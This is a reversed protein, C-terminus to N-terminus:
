FINGLNSRPKGVRIMASSAGLQDGCNLIYRYLITETVDQKLLDQERKSLHQRLLRKTKKLGIASKAKETFGSAGLLIEMIEQDQEAANLLTTLGPGIHELKSKAKMIRDVFPSALEFQRMAQQLFGDAIEEGTTTIELPARYISQM